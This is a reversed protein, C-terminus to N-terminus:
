KIKGKFIFYFYTVVALWKRFFYIMKVYFTLKVMSHSHMTRFVPGCECKWNGFDGRPKTSSSEPENSVKLNGSKWPHVDGGIGCWGHFLAGLDRGRKSWEMKNPDTILKATQGKIWCMSGNWAWVFQILIIISMLSLIRPPYNQYEQRHIDIAHAGCIQIM